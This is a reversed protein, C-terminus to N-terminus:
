EYKKIIEDFSDVIYSLNERGVEFTSLKFFKTLGAKIGHINRSKLEKYLFYRGKKVRTSIEYLNPAEFFMLDHNHPKQGMQILGMTELKESFWRADAVENGWNRTRKVVEPFSAIMTMLTASRATCGLLEIEKNKNTPSKRFIIDSYDGNDNNVGLVGIPGCSAMSKHGSGAIFDVGLEKADVPMRGVSYACNLLLPVDYEHCVSAIKKADALNGYNGDPYTLLALAPAKGTESITEEIATGYAEPDIHYDPKESHPVKRIELRARQAAVVSSYHALGDLIVTDGEQAIAHMVAFKSERAGHTIRVEDVGLFEPLAEHIFKQVPPKKILDLVGGCNDCISYGDGWEVLARRADETLIGGTQLPDINIMNKTPREIFGFSKLAADDLTM